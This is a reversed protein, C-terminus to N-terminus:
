ETDMRSFDITMNKTDKNYRIEYIDSGASVYMVYYTSLEAYDGEIPTLEQETHGRESIFDVIVPKVKEYWTNQDKVDDETISVEYEEGNGGSVSVEPQEDTATGNNHTVVVAVVAFIVLVILGLVKLLKKM